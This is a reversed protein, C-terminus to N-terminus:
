GPKYYGPGTKRTGGSRQQNVPQRVERVNERFYIANKICRIFKCMGINGLHHADGDRTLEYDLLQNRDLFNYLTPMCVDFRSQVIGNWVLSNFFNIYQNMLRDRTPLVPIIFIKTKCITGIQEVKSKLVDFVKIIDNRNNIYEPRLNNTGCILVVNAYGICKTPDIDEIKAAKVRRGPYKEGFRGRGAGFKIEKSNSDGMIIVSRKNKAEIRRLTISFREECVSVDLIGHKFWAQSSRNMVYLSNNSPTISETVDPNQLAIFSVTRKGLSYTYIDTEPEIEIEDDCHMPLKSPERESIGRKAAYHNILVSNPVEDPPLSYDTQIKDVLKQLIPPITSSLPKVKSGSYEYEAGYLLVSYGTKKKFSPLSKKLFDLTEKSEDDCLYDTKYDDFPKESCPPLDHKTADQAEYLNESPGTSNQSSLKNVAETLAELQTKINDVPPELKSQSLDAIKEDIYSSINQYITDSLATSQLHSSPHNPPPPIPCVWCWPCNWQKVISDVVNKPINDAKLNVCTTHWAQKYTNCTLLWSLGQSSGGCPCNKKNLKLKM